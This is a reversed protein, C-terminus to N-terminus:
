HIPIDGMIPTGKDDFGELPNVITLNKEAKPNSLISTYGPLDNYWGWMEQKVLSKLSEESKAVDLFTLLRGILHEMDSLAVIPMETLGAHKAQVLEPHGFSPYKNM